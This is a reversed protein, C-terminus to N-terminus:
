SADVLEMGLFLQQQLLEFQELTGLLDLKVENQFDKNTIQIHLQQLIYEIQSLMAYSVVLAKPYQKIYEFLDSHSIVLNTSDSYAKVLGGTGLKVGGFYRITIVATNILNNGALVALSPKGSTGKPEGDDSCNEVIQEFENLYRYAYVFHRAKPHEKKLQELTQEFLDFPLLYSIFKSKKVELTTHFIEQLCQM